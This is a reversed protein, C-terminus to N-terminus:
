PKRWSTANGDVHELPAVVAFRRRFDDTVKRPGTWFGYDDAVYGSSWVKPYVRISDYWDGDTHLLAVPGVHDVSAPLTADFWGKGIGCDAAIRPATSPRM